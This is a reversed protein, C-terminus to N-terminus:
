ALQGIPVALTVAILALVRPLHRVVAPPPAAAALHTDVIDLTTQVREVDERRLRMEWRRHELDVAVLHAAGSRRADVRVMTLRRYDIAHEAFSGERWVLRDDSFTVSSSDDAARFVAAEGLSAPAM